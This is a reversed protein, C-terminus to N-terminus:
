FDVSGSILLGQRIIGAGNETRFAIEPSIVRMVNFYAATDYAIQFTLQISGDQYSDSWVGGVQAAAMPSFQFAKNQLVAELAQYTIPIGTTSASNRKAFTSTRCDSLGYQVSGEFNGFLGVNKWYKWVTHIAVMPGVGYWNMKQYNQFFAGQTSGFIQVPSSNDNTLVGVQRRVLNTFSIGYGTTMELNPTLMTPRQLLFDMDNITTKNGVDLNAFGFSSSLNLNEVYQNWYASALYQQGYSSGYNANNIITLNYYSFSGRWNDIFNKYGVGVMFGWGYNAPQQIALANAPYQTQTRDTVSAVEGAQAIVQQYIAGASVDFGQDCDLFPGAYCLPACNPEITETSQRNSAEVGLMMFSALAFKAINYFKQNKM